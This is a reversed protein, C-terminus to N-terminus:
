TPKQTSGEPRQGLFRELTKLLVSRSVPKSLWGEIPIREEHPFESAHPSTAISSVMIIPVHEL